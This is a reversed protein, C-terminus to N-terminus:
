ARQYDRESMLAEYAAQEEEIFARLRAQYRAKWGQQPARLFWSRRLDWVRAMDNMISRHSMTMHGASPYVTAEGAYLVGDAVMFDVRLYDTDRAIEEAARMAAAYCDPAPYDPPLRKDPRFWAMSTMLELRKGDRDYIGAQSEPSKEARYLVTYYVKGGFLHVKLEDLPAGGGIEEEAFLRREVDRYGWQVHKGGYPRALWKRTERRFADRDAGREAFFWNQRCGANLKVVVGARMLEGPLADPESGTWLLKPIRVPEDLGEFLRRTALKDCFINFAPDHDFIRRWYMKEHYTVPLAINPHFGLHKRFSLIARPHALCASANLWRAEGIPRRPRLDDFHTPYLAPQPENVGDARSGRGMATGDNTHASM